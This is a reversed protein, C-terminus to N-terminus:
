APGFLTAWSNSQSTGKGTLQVEGVFRGTWWGSFDANIGSALYEPGFLIAFSSLSAARATLTTIGGSATGM